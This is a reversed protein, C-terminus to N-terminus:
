GGKRLIIRNNGGETEVSIKGWIELKILAKRIEMESIDEIIERVNKILETFLINKKNEIISYVLTHIPKKDWTM